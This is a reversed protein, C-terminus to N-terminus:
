PHFKFLAFSFVFSFYFVQEFRFFAASVHFPRLVSIPSFECPCDCDDIVVPSCRVKEFLRFSKKQPDSFVSWLRFM